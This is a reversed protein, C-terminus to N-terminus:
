TDQWKAVLAIVLSFRQREIEIEERELREAVAEDIESQRRQAIEQELQAQDLNLRELSVLQLFTQETQERIRAIGDLRVQVVALEQEKAEQQEQNRYIEDNIDQLRKAADEQQKQLEELHAEATRRIEGFHNAQQQALRQLQRHNQMERYYKDALIRDSHRGVGGASSSRKDSAVDSYDRYYIEAVTAMDNQTAVDLLHKAEENGAITAEQLRQLIQFELDNVEKQKKAADLTYNANLETAELLDKLIEQREKTAKLHEDNQALLDAQLEQLPATLTQISAEAQEALGQAEELAARADALQQQLEEFDSEPTILYADLLRKEALVVENEATLLTRKQSFATQQERLVVAKNEVLGLADQLQAQKTQLETLEEGTAVAIKEALAEGDAILQQRLKDVQETETDLAVTQQEVWKETDALKNQLEQSQKNLAGRRELIEEITDIYEVANEDHEEWEALVKANYDDAEKQAKAFEQEIEPLLNELLQLQEQAAPIHERSTELVEALNHSADIPAEAVNTANQTNAWQEALPQFIEQQRSKEDSVVLQEAAQQRLQPALKSYTDWLIWDHDVHTITVWHTEKRGSKGRKWTKRRETWTRGNKRSRQWHEAARKEYWDAQALAASAQANNHAEEAKVKALLSSYENSKEETEAQLVDIATANSTANNVFEERYAKATPLELAADRNKAATEAAARENNYNAEAASYHIWGYVPVTKRNRRRHGVVGWTKIQSQWHNANNEHQQRKQEYQQAATEDQQKKADYQQQYEALEQSEVGFREVIPAIESWLKADQEILQKLKEIEQKLTIEGAAFEDRRPAVVGLTTIADRLDALNRDREGDIDALNDEIYQILDDVSQSLNQQSEGIEKTQQHGELLQNVWQTASATLDARVQENLQAYALVTDESVAKEAAAETGLHRNLAELREDNSDLQERIELEQQQRLNGLSTTAETLRANLGFVVGENEAKRISLDDRQATTQAILNTLAQRSVDDMTKNLDSQWDAILGTLVLNM